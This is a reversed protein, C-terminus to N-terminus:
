ATVNAGIPDVGEALREFLSEMRRAQEPLTARGMRYVPIKNSLPALGALSAGLGRSYYHHNHVALSMVAESEELRELRSETALLLVVAGLRNRAVRRCPHFLLSGDDGQFCDKQQAIRTWLADGLLERSTARVRSRRSIPTATWDSTELQFGDDSYLNFGRSWLYAALTSKGAEKNGVVGVSVGGKELLCAHFGMPADPRVLDAYVSQFEVAKLAESVCAFRSSFGEKELFPKMWTPGKTEWTSETPKLVVWDGVFQSDPSPVWPAFVSEALAFCESLDTNM